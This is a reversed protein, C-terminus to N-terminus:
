KKRCHVWDLILFRWSGKLIWFFIKPSSILLFVTLMFLVYNYMREGCFFWLKFMEGYRWIGITCVREMAIHLLMLLSSFTVELVGRLFSGKTLRGVLSFVFAPKKFNTISLVCRNEMVYIKCNQRFARRWQHIGTNYLDKRPQVFGIFLFTPCWQFM